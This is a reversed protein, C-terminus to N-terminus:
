TSPSLSLPNIQLLILIDVVALDFEESYETDCTKKMKM